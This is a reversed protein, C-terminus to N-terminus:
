EPWVQLSAAALQALNRFSEALQALELLISYM